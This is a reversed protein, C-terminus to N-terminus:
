SDSHLSAPRCGVGHIAAPVDQHAAQDGSCTFGSMLFSFHVSSSSALSTSNTLVWPLQQASIARPM